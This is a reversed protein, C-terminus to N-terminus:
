LCSLYNTVNKKNLHDTFLLILTECKLFKGVTAYLITLEVTIPMNLRAAAELDQVVFRFWIKFNQWQKSFSISVNITPIVHINSSFAGSARYTDILIIFPTRKFCFKPAWFVPTKRANVCFLNIVLTYSSTRMLFSMSTQAKYSITLFIALRNGLSSYQFSHMQMLLYNKENHDPQLKKGKATRRVQLLLSYMRFNYM